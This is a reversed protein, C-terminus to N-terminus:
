EDAADSTYLLCSGRRRALVRAVAAAVDESQLAQELEPVESVFPRLRRRLFEVTERSGPALSSGRLESCQVFLLLPTQKALRPELEERVQELRERLGPLGGKSELGADLYCAFGRDFGSLRGSFQRNSVLAVTDWGAESFSEGLTPVGPGLRHRPLERVTELGHESPHRATLLSAVAASASTSPTHHGTYIAAERLRAGLFPTPAISPAGEVLLLRDGRLDDVALVIVVPAEDRAPGSTRGGEACAVALLGFVLPVLRARRM